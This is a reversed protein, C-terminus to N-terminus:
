QGPSAPSQAPARNWPRADASRAVVPLCSMRLRACGLPIMTIREAPADTRIPSERLVDATQNVLTWDPIRRARMSLTIPAAEPTWPQAAVARESAVKLGAPMGASDLCLGYNWPTTPLVEWEPWADTGGCRRWQEGIAVSYSLPGRDVTVSGTRPWVTLATRMPMSLIVTDGPQWQRALRLFEGPRPEVALERGNIAARFGECWRPVRLYLPFDLAHRSEVELAVTGSFPYDTSERIRVLGGRVRTEVTSAAYMWAVLGGDASAQWLNEVFWPWTMAVNHQCCRYTHPSYDLQRGKNYYEHQGSADQQPQNAATLYHLAKLDPTQSAPFHNFLLDEVRDAYISQGSLRGLLYFTRAFEGFGCTEFGQRPDVCGSRVQEDAGFIGRPQQGWTAMHQAYWYDTQARHWAAGSQAAYIGPYGFRQTFHIVHRDLWEDSPPLIREFFRTGLALLRASGGRNYLWHLHPLMDGARAAQVSPHWDGYGERCVPVFRDDPLRRCFAFFRAMLRPVRRDGTAEHHRTLADLMVMHPWLDCVIQGNKGIVAKHATAGFYGDADQSGIVADVWRQTEGQLRADGTLRALSYAGRLWYAAEEWGNNAGGLWGSDRQLFPSIETLRGTMGATMLSLQHNLWGGPQVCGLPLKAMRNAALPPRNFVHGAAPVGLAPTDLCTAARDTKGTSRRGEKLVQKHM